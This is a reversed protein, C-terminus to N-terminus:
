SGPPVGAAAKAISQQAKTMGKGLQEFMKKKSEMYNRGVSLINEDTLKSTFANRISSPL